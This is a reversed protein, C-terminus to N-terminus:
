LLLGRKLYIQPLCLSIFNEFVPQRFRKKEFVITMDDKKSM